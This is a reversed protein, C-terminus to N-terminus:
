GCFNNGTFFLLFIALGCFYVGVFITHWVTPMKVRYDQLFPLSINLFTLHLHLTTKKGELRGQGHKFYTKTQFHMCNRANLFRM